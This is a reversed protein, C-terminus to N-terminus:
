KAVVAQKWEAPAGPLTEALIRRIHGRETTTLYTYHGTTDQGELVTWLRNLVTQKLPATLHQFTLSYVMYSCRYKFLRHLLQFDKLSRGDGSQPANKTFATQFAPDGEIGGEPLEAEDKFLLAEVVDEAAHDIIRRATGTPESMVTEGLERQLSTQMHMARLAAHNAKTLINQVSTQHELVMLAVIDSQKRKYPTVDFFKALNTVNAGAKFNIDITQDNKETATVNGRHLISGHRGTVYWGGWRDTFPTTTDVVTSGQSMIPHGEPGPYVSRVIVGPVEPTFPGGHCSLCSNDRQFHLPKAPEEDPDLLYFIPGLKPDITAVEISGGLCYGVYANDGFYVVRPTQPSIRDNQKSTKSFVMVQSEQPIDFQKMVDRLVTWADTRDIKVKGSAMLSELRQTADNPTTDSYRIPANEYEDEAHLSLCSSALIALGLHWLSANQVSTKLFHSTM